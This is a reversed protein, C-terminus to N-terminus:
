ALGEQAQQWQEARRQIVELPMLYVTGRAIGDAQEILDKVAEPEMNGVPVVYTIPGCGDIYFEALEYAQVKAMIM